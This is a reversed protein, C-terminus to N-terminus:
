SAVNERTAELLAALTDFTSRDLLGDVRAPRFRRQFGKLVMATQEDMRGTAEIGYGYAALMHQARGVEGPLPLPSGPEGVPAVYHALGAEGLLVWPFHEGPDAKRAPAIDSHAVIAGPGMGHRSVIDRCLAIVAEMQDGPYPPCGGPHGPNVIEIGISASNIDTRGRWFSAGAHWARDAERVMQVIRGDEHVLYHSSVESCTDCLWDEAMPGTGMGTYHLVIMDPRAPGRREGFNPSPRVIASAHDPAFSM